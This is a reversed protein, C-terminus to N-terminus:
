GVCLDQYEFKIGNKIQFKISIDSDIIWENNIRTAYIYGVREKSAILKQNNISLHDGKIALVEQLLGTDKSLSIWTWNFNTEIEEGRVPSKNGIILIDLRDKDVIEFGRGDKFQIERVVVKPDDAKRPFLFTIFEEDGKGKKSLVAVPAPDKGGYCESINGDEIRWMSDKSSSFIEIGSLNEPRERIATLSSVSQGHEIVPVSGTAFHFYLDYAHLSETSVRDLIIWYNSKLFLISRTHTAPSPFRLYGDHTGEFLDFRKHNKWELLSTKAIDKWTFATNCTSSSENDVVLTNHAHSSRFYNREELSGTYTYTGPDVLLTRGFATLDFSLADAHAHGCNLTGHPGCDIMLYNSTSTWGDRMIYYGGTKFAHSESTPPHSPLQNLNHIAESGLLWLTEEALEGAVYKYDSRNFLAAGNSLTSRFDNLARDEIPLLRGGDDDGFLPSTGDPRTIYMLYDLLSILKSRIEQGLDIKNNNALILLHIYFDTTYRHYYTTQEFYVGDSQIHRDLEKILISKGTEQWRSSINFEPLLLGIYFLGLAEGTLHTNPSFYTSLYTELHRAHLYLFKLIKLFISPTLTKSTRFFYLSWLWSIARFSVELSSAWNIGLKPPNQEMWSSMHNIFAEAYVEDNTYWYAKGLTLLYQHRNLEWTIKKDGAVQPDLYNIQSWHKLPVRKNSIPELHFDIPNGLYLDKFALLDFRGELIRNARNITAEVSDKFYQDVVDLTKQKDNFSAFFAPSTRTRFDTLLKESNSVKQLLKFFANDQPIHVQESLGYRERYISIVQASRVRLENLDRGRLKKLKNLM